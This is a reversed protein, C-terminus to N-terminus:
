DENHEDRPMQLGMLGMLNGGPGAAGGQSKFSELLNQALNFDIDVGEDDKDQLLTASGKSPHESSPGERIARPSIVLKDLDQKANLQLAGADRLEMEMARMEEHLIKSDRDDTEASDPKGVNMMEQMMQTFKDEDFNIDQNASARGTVESSTSSDQDDDEMDDRDMEDWFEAGEIGASEDQLFDEFRSVMKRLNDQVNKDGFTGKRGQNSSGKGGLEKDFDEFNVDLWKEDDEQRSWTAIVDDSPLPEEGCGIDELMIKVNRVAKKDENQPDSLLMEFGCTLKMGVDVDRELHFDSEHSLLSTWANPFDFLQSKLQAYGVKTFKTSVNVRDKPPFMLRDGSQAQLPRLAIPDRLYFAEVAPSVLAADEHLIYALKRPIKVIAHHLTDQIQQPYKQLRHFAEAQIRPSKTLRDPHHRITALAEELTLSKRLGNKKQTRIVGPNESEIILLNGNNLWVRHNAVEPNLWRPLVGAAEILLFQGNTDVIRIWVEPFKASLERLIYVILWEDEVSDGFNTRGRLVSEDNRRELTLDFSERQWIFDKTLENSLKLAANQVKRLHERKQFANLKSDVIHVAYEVCDEPLTRPFGDFGEGFWKLDNAPMDRTM